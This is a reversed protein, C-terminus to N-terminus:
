EKVNNMKPVLQELIEKHEGREAYDHATFGLM